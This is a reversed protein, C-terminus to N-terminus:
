GNREPTLFSSFNMFLIWFNNANENSEANSQFQGFHSDSERVNEFNNTGNKQGYTLEDDPLFITPFQLTRSMGAV